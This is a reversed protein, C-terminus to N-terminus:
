WPWVYWDDAYWSEEYYTEEYWYEEVYTDEYYGSPGSWYYGPSGYFGLDLSFGELVDDCGSQAFLAAGLLLMCTLKKM